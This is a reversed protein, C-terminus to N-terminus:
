RELAPIRIAVGGARLREVETSLAELAAEQRDTPLHLALMGAGVGDTMLRYETEVGDLLVAAKQIERGSILEVEGARLRELDHIGPASGDNDLNVLECAGVTAEPADELRRVVAALLAAATRLQDPGSWCPAIYSGGLEVEIDRRRM